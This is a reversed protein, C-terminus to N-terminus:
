IRTVKITNEVPKKVTIYIYTMGNLSKYGVKEINNIVDKAVSCEYDISYTEGDYKTEGKVKISNSTVTVHVDDPAVGVSRCACKYGKDTKHWSMPSMDKTKASNYRVIPKDFIRMFDDDFFNMLSEM